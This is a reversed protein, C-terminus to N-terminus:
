ALKTLWQEIALEGHYGAFYLSEAAFHRCLDAESQQSHERYWYFAMSMMGTINLAMIRSDCQRFNGEKIGTEILESLIATIAKESETARAHLAPSFCREERFYVGIMKQNNLINAAFCFCALALKEVSTEGREVGREVSQRTLEACRDIIAELVAEKTEFYYYILAKTASMAVAIDDVTASQYGVRYFVDIATNIITERKFARVDDRFVSRAATTAPRTPRITKKSRATTKPMWKEM